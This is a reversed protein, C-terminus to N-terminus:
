TAAVMRRPKFHQEIRSTPKGTCGDCLGTGAKPVLVIEIIYDGHKWSMAKGVGARGKTITKLKEWRALKSKNLERWEFLEIIENADALPPLNHGAPPPATKLKRVAM